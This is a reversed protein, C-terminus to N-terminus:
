DCGHTAAGSSSGTDCQAALPALDQRSAGLPWSLLEMGVTCCFSLTRSTKLPDAPQPPRPTHALAPCQAPTVAQGWGLLSLCVISPAATGANVPVARARLSSKQSCWCSLVAWFPSPCNEEEEERLLPVWSERIVGPMAGAPHIKQQILPNLVGVPVLHGAPASGEFGGEEKASEALWSILVCKRGEGMVKRALASLPWEWTNYKPFDKRRAGRRDEARCKGARSEWSFGAM